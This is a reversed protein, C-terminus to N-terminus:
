RLLSLAERWRPVKDAACIKLLSNYTLVGPCVGRRRMRTLLSNMQNFKHAKALAVLVTQYVIPSVNHMPTEADDESSDLTEELISLMQHADQWRGRRAYGSIVIGLAHATAGEMTRVLEAAVDIRDASTRNNKKPRKPEFGGACCAEIVAHYTSAPVENGPTRLLEAVADDIRGAELLSHIPITTVEAIGVDNSHTKSTYIPSDGRIPASAFCVDCPSSASQSPPGLKLQFAVTSAAATWLILVVFIM